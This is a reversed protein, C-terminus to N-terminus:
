EGGIQSMLSFSEIFPGAMSPNKIMACFRGFQVKAKWHCGGNGDLDNRVAEEVVEDLKSQRRAYGL